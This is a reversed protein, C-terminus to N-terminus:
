EYIVRYLGEILSQYNARDFTIEGFSVHIVKNSTKVIFFSLEEHEPDIYTFCELQSSGTKQRLFATADTSANAYKPM